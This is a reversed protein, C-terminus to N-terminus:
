LGAWKWEWGRGSGDGGVERVQQLEINQTSLEFKLSATADEVLSSAAELEAKMQDREQELSGLRKSELEMRREVERELNLRLEEMGSTLRQNDSRLEACEERLSAEVEVRSAMEEQLQRLNDESRRRVEHVLAQNKLSTHADSLDRYLQQNESEMTALKTSLESVEQLLDTLWQSITAFNLVANTVPM